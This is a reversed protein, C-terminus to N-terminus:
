DIHYFPNPMLVTHEVHGGELDSTQDGVSLVITYGQAEIQERRGTKYETATMEREADNRLILETWGEIGAAALVRETAARQHEKRGTVFFVAVDHGLAYDLLPEAGAILGPSGTEVWEDWIAPDYCFETRELHPLNRITTEDVDVVIALKEGAGRAEVRERLTAEASAWATATASAYAESNGYAALSGVLDGRCRESADLKAKLADREAELADVRDEAATQDAEAKALAARAEDLQGGDCAFSAILLSAVLSLSAARSGMRLRITGGM